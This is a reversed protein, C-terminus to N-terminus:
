SRNTHEYTQINTLKFHRGFVTRTIFVCMICHFNLFINFVLFEIFETSTGLMAARSNFFCHFTQVPNM